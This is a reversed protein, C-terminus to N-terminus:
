LFTFSFFNGKLMGMEQCSAQNGVRGGRIKQSKRQVGKGVGGGCSRKGELFASESNM